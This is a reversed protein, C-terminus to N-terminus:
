PGRLEARAAEQEESLRLHEGRNPFYIHRWMRWITRLTRPVDSPRVTTRGARRPYHRVGVERIQWNWKRARAVIETDIFFDDSMLVLRDLKERRIVKFSCDVDRVQVRFFLRVLRNYVFSAVLRTLPDFRYVRFGALLDTDERLPLLPAVETLDFQNDADTYFVLQHRAAAFGTRLARGYGRNEAHRIVRLWPRDSGMMKLLDSGGDTSGDDVVIVEITWSSMLEILRDCQAIFDPVTEYENYAPVVVSLRSEAIPVRPGTEPCGCRM